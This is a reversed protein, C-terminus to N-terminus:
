SKKLVDVLQDHILSNSAIVNSANLDIKENSFTSIKGGAESLIVSGAAIDVIKTSNWIRADIKGSAILCLDATATGFIRVTFAAEAIRQLNNFSQPSLHFQNDYNVVAKDLRDNDSVQIAKGNCFAGKESMAHFLQDDGPFYIVGLYIGNEDGLGVSVSSFPLGAIYNHTGDLPDIIWTLKKVVNPSKREESVIDYDPFDRALSKIIQKQSLVDVEAVMEHTAKRVVRFPKQFYEKLIIGAEQVASIATDM